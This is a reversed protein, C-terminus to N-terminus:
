SILLLSFSIVRDNYDNYGGVGLSFYFPEPKDYCLLDGAPDFQPNIRELIATLMLIFQQGRNRKGHAEFDVPVFMHRQQDRDIKLWDRPDIIIPCKVPRFLTSWDLYGYKESRRHKKSDM